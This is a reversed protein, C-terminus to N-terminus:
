KSRRGSLPRSELTAGDAGKLTASSADITIGLVTFDPSTGATFSGQVSVTSSAPERELRTAVVKGNGVPSEFGHVDITDAVSIDTLSFKQVHASSKDGIPHAVPPPSPRLSGM